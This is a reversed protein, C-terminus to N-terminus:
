LRSRLWIHGYSMWLGTRVNEYNSSQLCTNGNTGRDPSGRIPGHATLPASEKRLRRLERLTTKLQAEDALESALESDIM